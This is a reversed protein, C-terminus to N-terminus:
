SLSNKLRASVQKPGLVQMVEYLDPSQRSGATAVRLVMTVDGIHGKFGQPNAKFTKMEPAFGLQSALARIKEFWVDRNDEPSYSSLFGELIAARDQLAVQEPFPFDKHEAFVEEFLWATQPRLDLWTAIRKSPKAGGREINLCHKTFEPYKEMLTGLPPDFRKAWELGQSYMEELDLRAIFDKSISTLKVMDALAGSPSLKELKVKFERIPANLNARRWDEFDPNAINLLYEIVAGVPFGSQLYFEVNAEPDKRKSLKRKSQREVTQGTEEDTETVMEQKQITSLHSYHPADWNCAQFIQLHVPVSSVWEDGRIVNTIRMFHDDIAHALHYLSQGDSKLIVIDLDNSPLSMAGKVGDNWSVRSRHDGFSRLRIVFPKGEGLAKEIKELSADRWTAWRGYYGPRVKQKVQLESAHELEEETCFCPYAFGNCVLHYGITRYIETRSSQLYPGYEGREEFGGESTKMFGEDPDLDFSSLTRVITDFAGAVERKADTDEVRLLFRGGTQHAMRQNVLSMFVFGIHAFGTPSPAVRTVIAGPPLQRPPYRKELDTLSPFTEFNPFVLQAIRTRDALSLPSTTEM